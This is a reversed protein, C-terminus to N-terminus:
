HNDEELLELYVYGKYEWSIIGDNTRRIIASYINSLENLERIAIFLYNKIIYDSIPTYEPDFDLNVLLRQLCFKVEKFSTNGKLLSEAIDILNVDYCAYRSLSDELNKIKNVISSEKGEIIAKNLEKPKM